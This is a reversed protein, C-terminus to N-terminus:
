SSRRPSGRGGAPGGPRGGPKGGSGGPKGPGGRGPPGSRPREGGPRAGAPKGSRPKDDRSKFDRAPRDGSESRPKYDRKPGDGTPRAGYARKPRDANEAGPAGARPKFDRKPHSTRPAAKAWGEKKPARRGTEAREAAETTAVGAARVRSPKRSPDSLASGSKGVVVPGRPRRGPIPAPTSVTNGQPLNEPRIHDALMERIVRPGIEEVSGVPLTGLQFPGYALRILRNVTLGVSELVKRVERNKGETISVSLWLNAPAHGDDGAKEKAKDITAEIPGYHIGDVTTGTKLTDLKEQTIRGRARARYQRVLASTPLELARSLEGDNTLLLLGETNLDLRGVSIVRPLGSPLADFVTPRGAPDMHSTVLGAPKHYRWVRTAEAAGVPKGNVTIVDDRTVLTAPTDLIKGNVAVQGLGILREVERRSAIGARALAKAIRETRKPAPKGGAKDDRGRDGGPKDGRPRDGRPKDSRPKDRDYKGGPKRDAFAGGEQRPRPKKDNDKSHRDM